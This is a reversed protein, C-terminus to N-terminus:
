KPAGDRAAHMIRKMESVAHPLGDFVARAVSAHGINLEVVEPLVAIASVNEYHLGHGANIILGLEDGYRAASAVRSLEEEQAIGSADAYTGTHLEVVPAGAEKAADLQAAEPDIFLSVRINKEALLRCAEAVKDFQGVVDLGGETTLEERKEPVLCCDSPQLDRAIAVMEETVAMEFNIHTQMREQLRRLDHDQIHRRDERLHLTISDAGAIEAMLAAEVPDPYDTGRAQRLTAVHDVNVGLYIANM